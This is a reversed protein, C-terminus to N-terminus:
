YKFLIQPLRLKQIINRFWRQFHDINTDRLEMVFSKKLFKTNGAFCFEYVSHSKLLPDNGFNAEFILRIWAFLDVEKLGSIMLFCITKQQNWPSVLLIMRKFKSLILILVQNCDRFHYVRSIRSQQYSFRGFLIDYSYILIGCFSKKKKESMQLLSHCM